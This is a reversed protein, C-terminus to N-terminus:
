PGNTPGGIRVPCSLRFGNTPLEGETVSVEFAVRRM